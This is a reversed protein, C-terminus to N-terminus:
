PIWPRSYPRPSRTLPMYTAGVFRGNLTARIMEKLKREAVPVWCGDRNEFWEEDKDFYALHLEKAMKAAFFETNISVSHPGHFIFPAGHAIRIDTDDPFDPLRIPEM